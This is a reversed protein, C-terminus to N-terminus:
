PMIWPKRKGFLAALYHVVTLLRQYLRATFAMSSLCRGKESYAIVVTWYTGATKREEEVGKCITVYPQHSMM